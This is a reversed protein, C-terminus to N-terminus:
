RRDDVEDTPVVSEILALAAILAAIVPIAIFALYM